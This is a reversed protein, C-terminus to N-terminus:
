FFLWVNKSFADIIEQAVPKWVELFTDVEVITAQDRLADHCTQTTCDEPHSWCFKLNNQLDVNLGELSPPHKNMVSRYQAGAVNAAQHYWDRCSYNYPLVEIEYVYTSFPKGWM